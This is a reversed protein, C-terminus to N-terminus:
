NKIMVKSAKGNAVVIYLGQSLTTRATEGSTLPLTKALQGTLYYVQAEGSQAAHIYLTVGSAWVRAPAIAANSTEPTVLSIFIETDEQVYLIVVTYSGDANPTIRVGEADSVLRRGTTVLPEHGSPLAVVPTLTFVFDSHSPISHVGAPPNTTFASVAPLTVRRLFPPVTVQPSAVKLEYFYDTGGVGSLIKVYVTATEGPYLDVSRLSQTFNPAAYLEVTAAADNPATIDSLRLSRTEASATVAVTYPDSPTGTGGDPTLLRDFVAIAPPISIIAPVIKFTVSRTDSYGGIGTVRATATGVNVNNAYAVVYHAHELLTAGGYKVELAPCVPLGTHTQDPVPAIYLSGVPAISPVAKITFDQTYNTGSALGDTITALLTFTGTTATTLINGSVAAGAGAFSISWVITQHTADSPHVTAVPSLDFPTGAAINRPIGTIITVPRFGSANQPDYDIASTPNSGFVYGTISSGGPANVPTMDNSRCGLHSL